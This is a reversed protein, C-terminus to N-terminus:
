KKIGSGVETMVPSSIKVESPAESEGVFYAHGMSDAASIRVAPDLVLMSALLNVAYRDVEKFHEGELTFNFEKNNRYV